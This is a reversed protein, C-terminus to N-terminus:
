KLLTMKGSYVANDFEITYVYVGSAANTGAATTGNWNVNYVGSGNVQISLVKTLRGTVDYIRIFVIGRYNDLVSFRITTEPNFPNPYNGLLKINSPVALNPDSIEEISTIDEEEFSTFSTIVNYDLSIQVIEQKIEDALGPNGEALRYDVMLKEIKNKAWIKPLFQNKSVISDSLNLDYNYSVEQGFARGSLTVSSSATENYRGTVLLQEGIFLNPPNEPYVEIVSESDFTIDTDLLVPNNIKLFFTNIREEVLDDRLFESLGDNENALSTLLVENTSTGIGFTFLQLSTEQSNIQDRISTLISNTNTTGVTAEGDTLFIIINATSDNAIQFQNVAEQLAGLINTGGGALLDDIYEIADQKEASSSAVHASQYSSVDSSFNIINFKDQENLNEVIFKASSKAQEMKNGSMSGSQDIVFTFIKNIVEQESPSPEAIFMFFGDGINDPVDDSNQYTSLSFLGLEEQSLEFSIDFDTDPITVESAYSITALNGTNESQTASHSNLEISTITRQSELEFMFTNSVLPEDQILSINNPYTFEVRGLEYTLFQVYTIEFSISAGADVSDTISFFLPNEGLYERLMPDKDGDSGGGPITTDQPEAKINATYWTGNIQYRLETASAGEPLPFAYKVPVKSDSNNIFQHTSTVLAVQNEVRVDISNENLHFYKAEKENVIVVGSAYINTAFTTTLILLYLSLSFLKRTYTIITSEM